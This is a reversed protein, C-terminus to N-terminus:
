PSPRPPRELAPGGAGGATTYDTAPLTQMDVADPDLSRFRRALDVMDRTSMTSDITLNDVGIGILRNLTLPNSIGSSLAKKLM